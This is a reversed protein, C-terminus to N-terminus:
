RIKRFSAEDLRDAFDNAEGEKLNEIQEAGAKSAPMFEPVDVM